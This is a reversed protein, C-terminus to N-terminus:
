GWVNSLKFLLKKFWFLKGDAMKKSLLFFFYYIVLKHISDLLGCLKLPISTLSTVSKWTISWQQFHRVWQLHTAPEWNRIDQRLGDLQLLIRWFASSVKCCSCVASTRGQLVVRQHGVYPLSPFLWRRLVISCWQKLLTPQQHKLNWVQAYSGVKWTLDSLLVSAKWWCCTCLMGVQFGMLLKVLNLVAKWNPKAKSGPLLWVALALVRRQLTKQRQWCLTM